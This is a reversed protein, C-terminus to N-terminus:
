NLHAKDIKNKIQKFKPNPLNINSLIKILKIIYLVYTFQTILNHILIIQHQKTLLIFSYFYFLANKVM